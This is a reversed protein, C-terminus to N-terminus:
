IKIQYKKQYEQITKEIGIELSVKPEWGLNKIKKINLVKRPTGNPMSKDWTIKGQFGTKSAIINVLDKIRIDKGTGVNLITYPDNKNDKPSNASSPDWEELAFIIARALDDVHMFERYVEGTGWCIVEDHSYKVANSFKRILSPMVHSNKAHYNDGTGYLNTPMLSIADFNYQLRLAQCLKIGSIKSIAYWENTPELPGTLLSDENIPQQAFKPYICSSGLFLFRKVNNKWSSEIVNNQIKLNEYIFDAPFTSNAYIGGVKAAALIVISPNNIEYWKKVAESDTLNLEEKTPALIEGKLEPNGYGALKLMRCVSSGVMGRAGAVFIRESLNIKKQLNM